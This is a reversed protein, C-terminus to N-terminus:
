GITRSTVNVTVILTIWDPEAIIRGGVSAQMVIGSDGDYYLPVGPRLFARIAGCMLTLPARGSTKPMSVSIIAQFDHSELAGTGVGVQVSPLHEYADAIFPRGITPTYEDVEWARGAPIVVKISRSASAGEDVLTKDRVTIETATVATIISTGNNAASFGAATIEEGVKFGDTVFSGSARVYKGAAVSMSISGTTVRVFDNILKARLASVLNTHVTASTM